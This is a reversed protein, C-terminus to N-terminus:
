LPRYKNGLPSNTKAQATLIGYLTEEVCFVGHREKVLLKNNKFEQTPICCISIKDVVTATRSLSLGDSAYVVMWQWHTQTHTHAGDFLVMSPEKGNAQM